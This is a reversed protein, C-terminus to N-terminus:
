VAREVDFVIKDNRYRFNLWYAGVPKPPAGRRAHWGGHGSGYEEKYTPTKIHLVEDHHIKGSQNLRVRSCWYSWQDHTHGSIIIDADPLYVQRRQHQIMDRTVPGGGGYGHDYHLVVNRHNSEGSPQMDTFRFKIFGGFGGSIISAGRNNLIGIAREMIDTEHNKKISEEHNGKGKLIIRKAWPEFWDAYTNVLSDLYNGSVHEPRLDRKDSRKDYKGQMACFGDGNDICYADREVMEELHRKQMAQDSHPNDWHRDSALLFSQQWDTARRYPVRVITSSPEIQEWAVRKSTPLVPKPRKVAVVM